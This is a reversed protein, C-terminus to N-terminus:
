RSGGPQPCACGRFSDPSVETQACSYSLWDKLPASGSSSAKSVYLDLFKQRIADNSRILLAIAQLSRPSYRPLHSLQRFDYEPVWVVGQSSDGAISSNQLYTAMYDTLAGSTKDYVGTEFAPNNRHDRSISPTIHIQFYPTGGADNIVTFDDMHTHGAYGDRVQSAHAELIALFSDQYPKKWFLTPNCAGAQSSKYADVGPPIHMLLTANKHAAQARDLESKLWALERFGPDAAGAASGAYNNSWFGTNLIIFEHNSVFPHPVAYYGGNSFDRTADPDAAVVKWEKALTELLLAGPDLYDGEASDNNGLTQFIPAGPFAQQVMQNVFILTNMAFRRYGSDSHTFSSYKARLNHGLFDGTVIVYDYHTGSHRAAELASALLAYNSDAGNPSIQRDPVSQFISQWREVPSALLQQVVHPDIGTLPDLHIDSLLLFTGENPGPPASAPTEFRQLTRANYGSGAFSLLLALFFALCSVVIGARKL